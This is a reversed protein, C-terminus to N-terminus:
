SAVARPLQAAATSEQSPLALMRGWRDLTASDVPNATRHDWVSLWDDWAIPTRAFVLRNADPTPEATPRLDHEIETGDPLRICLGVPTVDWTAGAPVNATVQERVIDAGALTYVGALAAIASRRESGDVRRLWGMERLGALLWGRRFELEVVVPTDPHEAHALEFDVRNVALQVKGVHVPHDSRGDGERLLAILERDLLREVARAVEDLEHRYARAAAWNRSHLADREAKRLRRYLKPVAGSHFGPQLLGKVTEGHAGVPVARLGRPRNARYLRWNEKTEWFLFGFADPLLWVTPIVIAYALWTPFVASLPTVMARTIDPVIPLMVKAAAYAIPAKIPNFGPEILVVMYFRALYAIPFWLVGLATRVVLSLQTDGTRFRLFDDVAFLVWEVADIVQRSVEVILRYLGPLLGARIHRITADLGRLAAKGAAEGLRSNVALASMLFVLWAAGAESRTPPILLWIVASLILPKAVYWWALRAAWSRVVQQWAESRYVAIPVEVLVHRARTLTAQWGKRLMRRFSDSHVAAGIFAVSAALLLVHWVPHPRWAGAAADGGFWPGVLVANLVAAVPGKKPDAVLSLLAAIVQLMLLAGLVPVTFWMTVQRGLSTGFNLATFRELWRTYLESPRYVGDLLSALRRDLRLLPDGRLFDEPEGLDPMKLQNRSIGDRLDGFTLFGKEIVRDLWENIVKQQAVREPANEPRIGADHLSTSLVTGFRGRLEQEADSLATRVLNTLRHRDADTLRVAPVREAAAQLHRAKRVLRLGPLPRKVPRKGASLVWEVADLTYMDREHDVCVKQLDYLLRAEAPPRGAQDAKDLLLPLVEAWEAATAPDLSLAAALRDTLKRLDALAQERTEPALEAPAIHWARTRFVAARVANGSLSAREAGRVLEWYREHSETEDAGLDSAAFPDPADQLRTAAFLADADIDERLQREVAALDTLGPFLGPLLGASFQRTELFVAAFEVYVARDDADHSLHHDQELVARIEEFEAQGIEDIRRALREGSLKDGNPADASLALHVAAHFLLRWFKLLVNSRELESLEEAPPRALLIVTDPLLQDPAVDLDTQEAHRFLTQRDVIHCYRHPVTRPGGRLTQSELIIRDLIRQPVLVARPDAARLTRQLEATTM